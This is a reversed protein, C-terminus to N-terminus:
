AALVDLAQLARACQGADEFLIAQLGVARAAECNVPLDDIFVTDAARLGHSALLHEYIAAEPKVMGVLGSIVVGDFHQWFGHMARLQHYIGAPMNSLCYLPVGRARLLELLAITDPKPVLSDRIVEFLLDLEPVPRGARRAIRELIGAESLAGRDLELWDAHLFILPQMRAREAEDPYFRELLKGPRWDLVVGGIDFIVHKM